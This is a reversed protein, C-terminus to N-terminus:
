KPLVDVIYALLCNLWCFGSTLWPKDWQFCDTMLYFQLAPDMFLIVECSFLDDVRVNKGLLIAKVKPSSAAVQRAVLKLAVDSSPIKKNPKVGLKRRCGAAGCHCDQDAGFQVFRGFENPQSKFVLFRYM